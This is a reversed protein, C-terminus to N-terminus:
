SNMTTRCVTWLTGNRAHRNCLWISYQSNPLACGPAPLSMLWYRLASGAGVDKTM